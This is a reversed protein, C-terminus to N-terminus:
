KHQYLCSLIRGRAAHINEEINGDAHLLSFRCNGTTLLTLDKQYRIIEKENLEQKRAIVATPDAVLCLVLDPQPVTSSAVRLLWRPLSLRLRAPDLFFEYAYRDGIVTRNKARAPLVHRLYGIWFGLWHYALFLFSLSSSRVSKGHPNQAAGAAEGGIRLSKRAAKWHFMLTDSKGTIEKMLPLIGEMVTSKGVGDAGEFVLFPGPPFMLRSIARRLYRWLGLLASSPSCLLARRYLCRRIQPTWRMVEEWNQDLVLEALKRGPRTGLHMVFASILSNPDQQELFLQAQIQHKKRVMGAYVLRTLINLVVEDAPYPHWVMGNWQRREIVASSVAYELWHWEVRDFLDLHMFRTGDKTALFLSIPGFEVQRILEWGTNPLANEVLKAAVGRMHKTVLLDVDNGIEEPLNEYNRLYVYCIGAEDFDRLIKLVLDGCNMYSCTEQSLAGREVVKLISPIRNNM